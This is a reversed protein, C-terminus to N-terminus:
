CEQTKLDKEKAGLVGVSFLDLDWGLNVWLRLCEQVAFARLLKTDGQASPVIVTDSAHFPRVATADAAERGLSKEFRDDFSCLAVVMRPYSSHGSEVRITFGGKHIDKKVRKYLKKSKSWSSFTLPGKLGHGHVHVYRVSQETM